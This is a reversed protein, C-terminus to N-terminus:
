PAPKPNSVASITETSSGGQSAFAYSLSFGFQWKYPHSIPLTTPPAVQQPGTVLGGGLTDVEGAYAGMTIFLHKGPPVWSVGTLYELATSSDSKSKVTAGLTLYNPFLTRCNFCKWHLDMFRASVLAMPLLRWGSGGNDVICGATATSKAPPTCGPGSNLPASAYSHQQLNSFVIGGSEFIRKGQGFQITFATSGGAAAASSDNGQMSQKQKPDNKQGAESNVGAGGDASLNRPKWSVSVAISSQVRYDPSVTADLEYNNPTNVIDALVEEQSAVESALSTAVSLETKLSDSASPGSASSFLSSLSAKDQNLDKVLGADDKCSTGIQSEISGFLSQANKAIAEAAQDLPTGATLTQPPPGPLDVKKNLSPAAPLAANHKGLIAQLNQMTPDPANELESLTHTCDKSEDKIEKAYRDATNKLDLFESHLKSVEAHPGNQYATMCDLFKQQQAIQDRIQKAQEALNELPKPPNQLVKNTNKAMFLNRNLDYAYQKPNANKSQIQVMTEDLQSKLVDLKAKAEAKKQSTSAPSAPAQPTSASPIQAGLFSTLSSGDTEKVHTGQLSLTFAQSVPNIGEIVIDLPDADTFSVPLRRRVKQNKDCYYYSQPQCARVIIAWRVDCSSDEQAIPCQLKQALANSAHSLLIGTLATVAIRHSSRLAFVEWDIRRVSKAVHV